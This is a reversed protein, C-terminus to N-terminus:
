GRRGAADKEWYARFFGRPDSVSQTPHGFVLTDRRALDYPAWAPTQPNDPRGTAALAVWASAIEDALRLSDDTPG